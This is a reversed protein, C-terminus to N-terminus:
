RLGELYAALRDFTENIGEVMGMELTTQLDAASAFLTRSTLKTQGNHDTFTVTVMLEPMDELVNGEVDSFADAYVIREPEVIEQYVAKGWSEEGEPGKMCYHWIGGPRFDVKCVPLTWGKPGFWQKLYEPDSYAKFVLERPADFIREIVFARRELDTAVSSSAQNDTM